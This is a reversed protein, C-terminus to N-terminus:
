NTVRNLGFTILSPTIQSIVRNWRTVPQEAVFIVDNPRMEMQTALTLNVVNSADLHWATVAGPDPPEWSARLVYIRMPNGTEVSFGGEDYLADALNAKRGLPLRFRGPRNVEGTVYVYDREAADLEVLFRHNDRAERLEARHLDIEARLENLAQIRSRQRFESLRIQEQFYTQAKELEYETDVFISDADRLQTKQLEGRALYEPLPIRYLTGNRYIRITTFDPNRTSIGGAEALAQDLYLPTLTIPVTRPRGVAGGISISKSNFDAIELSFAPDIGSEVLRQFLEAEAEELTLGDLRVRGVNPISITGDDQVTYGLRENQAALLGALEAVTGRTSKVALVVVDGIGVRYPGPEFPPPARTELAAPRIQPDLSPDPIPDEAASSGTATDDRSGGATQFFVDPLGRPTYPSQNAQLVTEATLTVIQVDVDGEDSVSPSIYSVGCGGLALFFLGTFIRTLM